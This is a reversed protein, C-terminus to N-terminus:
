LSVNACGLVLWFGLLEYKTKFAEQLQNLRNVPIDGETSLFFAGGELGGEAIPLQVQLLLQLAVQTKGTSYSRAFIAQNQSTATISVSQLKIPTAVRRLKM